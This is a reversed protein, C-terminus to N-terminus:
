AKVRETGNMPGNLMKLVVCVSCRCVAACSGDFSSAAGRAISSATVIVSNIQNKKQRMTMTKDIQLQRRRDHQYSITESSKIVFVEGGDDAPPLQKEMVSSRLRLNPKPKGGMWDVPMVSQLTTAGAM